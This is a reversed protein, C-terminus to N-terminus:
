GNRSRRGSRTARESIPSALDSALRARERDHGPRFLAQFYASVLGPDKLPEVAINPALRATAQHEGGLFLIGVEGEKLTADITRAIFEDRERLLRGGEEPDAVARHESARGSGPRTTSTERALRDREQWLLAPDETIRLEAGRGILDLLLQYNRSGRRAAEEVIARGVSGGAPLGDQYLKLQRADLSELFVAVEAWYRALTETHVAWRARGALRVTEALLAPGAMGLDAEDHVIPVHILRRM